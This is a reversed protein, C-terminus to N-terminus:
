PWEETLEESAMNMPVLAGLETTQRVTGGLTGYERPARGALATIQARQFATFTRRCGTGCRM